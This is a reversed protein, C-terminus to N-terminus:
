PKTRVVTLHRSLLNRGPIEAMNKWAYRPLLALLQKCMFVIQPLTHLHKSAGSQYGHLVERRGNLDRHLDNIIYVLIYDLSEESENSNQANKM